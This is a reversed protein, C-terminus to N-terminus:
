RGLCYLRMRQITAEGGPAVVFPVQMKRPQLANVWEYSSEHGRQIGPPLPDNFVSAEVGEMPRFTLM